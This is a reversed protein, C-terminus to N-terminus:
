TWMSLGLFNFHRVREININDILLTLRNQATHFLMYKSKTIDISLNNTKLWDNIKKLEENIVKNIDKNYTNRFIIKLTGSLTTHDAYIIFDFIKSAHAIDNIYIIFLLWNFLM